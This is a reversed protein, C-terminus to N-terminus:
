NNVLLNLIKSSVRKKELYIYQFINNNYKHRINM